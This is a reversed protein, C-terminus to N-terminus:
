KKECILTAKHISNVTHRGLVFSVRIFDELSKNQTALVLTKFETHSLEQQLITATCECVEKDGLCMKKFEREPYTYEWWSLAIVVLLFVTWVKSM